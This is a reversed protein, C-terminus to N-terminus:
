GPAKRRASKITIPKVPVNEHPMQNADLKTTTETKAIADVVDMGGIVKGFVAYGGGYSDLKTNAGHNIYFQSTASDPNSTRAMAITGPTNSLGNGSENKIAPSAGELKEMLTNNVDKMGGAQIMFRPIVRHFVLGDYFGNDVHKLFNEVSIPAKGRDLELTILGATTDLVVVPPDAAKPDQAMSPARAILIASAVTLAAPLRRLSLM